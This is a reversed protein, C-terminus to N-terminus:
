AHFVFIREGDATEFVSIAHERPPDISAEWLVIVAQRAAEDYLRPRAPLRTPERPEDIGNLV